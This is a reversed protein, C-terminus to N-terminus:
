IFFHLYLLNKNSGCNGGSEIMESKNVTVYWWYEYWLFVSVIILSHIEIKQELNSAGKVGVVGGKM